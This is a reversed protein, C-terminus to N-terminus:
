RSIRGPGRRNQLRGIRATRVVTCPEGDVEVLMHYLKQVIADGEKQSSCHVMIDIDSRGYPGYGNDQPSFVIGLSRRCGLTRNEFPLATNGEATRGNSCTTTTWPLITQSLSITSWTM